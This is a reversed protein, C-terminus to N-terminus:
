PSRPERTRRWFGRVNSSHIFERVMIRSNSSERTRSDCEVNHKLGYWIIGCRSKPRLRLKGRRAVRPAYSHRAACACVRGTCRWHARPGCRVFNQLTGPLCLAQLDTPLAGQDGFGGFRHHEQNVPVDGNSWISQNKNLKIFCISNVGALQKWKSKRIKM